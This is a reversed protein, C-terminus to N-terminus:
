NVTLSFTTSYTLAGSAATVTVTYTGTPTGPDTIGGGCGVGAILFGALVLSLVIHWYRQKRRAGAFLLVGGLMLSTSARWLGLGRPQPERLSATHPATTTVTLSASSGVMALSAPNFSCSAEAPLGSCSLVLSGSLSSGSSSVPVTAAGGRVVSVSPTVTLTFDPNAITVTEIGSSAPLWNADGSYTLTLNHTGPSFPATTTNLSIVSGAQNAQGISTTFDDVARHYSLQHGLLNPHVIQGANFLANEASSASGTITQEYQIAQMWYREADVLVSGTSAAADRMAQNTRLFRYDMTINGLGNGLFDATIM